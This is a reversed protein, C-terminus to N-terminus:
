TSSLAGESASQRRGSLKREGATKWYSASRNRRARQNPAPRSLSKRFAPRSYRRDIVAPRGDARDYILRRLLAEAVVEEDPSIGLEYSADEERSRLASGALPPQGKITM